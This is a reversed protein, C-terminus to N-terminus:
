ISTSKDFYILTDKIIVYACKTWNTKNGGIIILIPEPCNLKEYKSLAIMQNIDTKSPTASANPHYHWEGLYYNNNEWLADLKEKLGNIGRKLSFRRKVTDITPSTIESINATLCDESYQGIIIGGTENPYSQNCIYTMKKFLEDPLNINLKFDSNLFLLKSVKANILLHIGRM